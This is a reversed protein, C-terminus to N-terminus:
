DQQNLFSNLYKRCHKFDILYVKRCEKDDILHRKEEGIGFLWTLEKVAVIGNELKSLEDFFKAVLEANLVHSAEFETELSNFISSASLFHESSM